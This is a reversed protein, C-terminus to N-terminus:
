YKDQIKELLFSIKLINGCYIKKSKRIDLVNKKQVVIIKM